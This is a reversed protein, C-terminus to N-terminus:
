IIFNKANNFSPKRDSELSHIVLKSGLDDKRYATKHECLRINCAQITEEVYGWDWVKCPLNYVIGLIDYRVLHPKSKCFSIKLANQFIM